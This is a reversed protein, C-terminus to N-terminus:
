ACTRRWADLELRKGIVSIRLRRALACYAAPKAIYEADLVARGADLYARYATCEDYAVCDETIAFDFARHLSGTLGPANKQAVGLGRAHAEKAIWLDFTVSVTKTIPFGTAQDYADLWDPEVADFGKRACTDLRERLLPALVDLRRVDLWREDPWGDVVKGLVAKPFRAADARYSEWTGVDVYCIVHRGQRHLAAVTGAPTDDADLDFVSAAVSTDIAGALQWQWTAGRVPHWAASPTTVSPATSTPSPRPTVAPEPAATPPSTRAPAPSTTPVTASTGVPTSTSSTVPTPVPTPLAPGACAAMLVAVAAM